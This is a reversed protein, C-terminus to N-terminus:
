FFFFFFSGMGTRSPSRKRSLLAAQGHHPPAAGPGARQFDWLRCAWRTGRPKPGTKSISLAAHRLCLPGYDRAGDFFHGVPWEQERAVQCTLHHSASASLNHANAPHLAAGLGSTPWRWPRIDLAQGPLRLGSHRLARPGERRRVGDLHLSASGRLTSKLRPPWAVPACTGPALLGQGEPLCMCACCLVLLATCHVKKTKGVDKKKKKKFRKRFFCVQAATKTCLTLVWFLYM